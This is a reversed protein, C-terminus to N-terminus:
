GKANGSGSHMAEVEENFRFFKQREEGQLQYTSLANFIDLRLDYPQSEDELMRFLQNKISDSQIGATFSSFVASRRVIESEDNLASEIFHGNDKDVWRSLAEVGAGRVNEDAHNIYVELRNAIEFQEQESVIDPSFAHLSVKLHQPDAMGDMTSLLADRSDSSNVGTSALLYLWQTQSDMDSTSLASLAHQEVELAGSAALMSRLLDKAGDESLEPYALLLSKVLEPSQEITQLFDAESEAMDEINLLELDHWNSVLSLENILQQASVPSSNNTLEATDSLSHNAALEAASAGPEAVDDKEDLILKEADIADVALVTEMQQTANNQSNNSLTSQTAASQDNAYQGPQFLYGIAIGLVFTTVAIVATRNHM